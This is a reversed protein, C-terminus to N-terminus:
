KKLAAILATPDVISELRFSKGEHSIDLPRGTQVALSWFQEPTIQPNVQAALAYVGAIYPTPWSMGGTRYFAYEDPGGPGATTRADMPAFIIGRPNYAGAYFNPAWFLGPEYSTFVDPDALPPRGVGQYGMGEENFKSTYVNLIGRANAERVAAIVDGYGSRNRDFGLSMSIVRIKRGVPLTDNIALLRRIGQAWYSYQKATDYDAVGIFYLDAEPAVGVTKGAAISAVAPGHMAATSRFWSQPLEEYGLGLEEYWRLQDVYEQHEVLLPQDIIGIGVGRGTIGRAQLSRAALGPNKGLELIKAPDFDSPMRDAAPWITRTDFDAVALADAANRMDLDSLDYSRLDVQFPQPSRNPDFQPLSALRGGRWKFAYPQTEISPLNLSAPFPPPTAPPFDYPVPAACATLLVTLMISFLWLRISAFETVSRSQLVM